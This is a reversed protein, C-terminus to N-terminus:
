KTKPKINIFKKGGIILFPINGFRIQTYIYQVTVGEQEAYEKITKLHTTEIKM